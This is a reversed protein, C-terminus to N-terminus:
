SSQPKHQLRSRRGQLVYCILERHTMFLLSRVYRAKKLAELAEIYTVKAIDEEPEKALRQLYRLEEAPWSAIEEDTVSHM